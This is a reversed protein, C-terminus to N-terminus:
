LPVVRHTCLYGSKAPGPFNVCRHFVRFKALLAHKHFKLAFGTLLEGVINTPNCADIVLYPHSAKSEYSM